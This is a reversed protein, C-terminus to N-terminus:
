KDSEDVFLILDPDLVPLSDSNNYLWLQKHNEVLESDHHESGTSSLIGINFGLKEKAIDLYRKLIIFPEMLELNLFLDPHQAYVEKLIKSRDPNKNFEHICNHGSLPLFSKVWNSTTGDMDLLITGSNEVKM